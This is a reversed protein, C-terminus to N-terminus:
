KEAEGEAEGDAASQEAPASNETGPEREKAGDEQVDSEPPLVDDAAEELIQFLDPIDEDPVLAEGDPEDPLVANATESEAAQKAKAAKKKSKKEKAAKKKSKKETDTPLIEESLLEEEEGAQAPATETETPSTEAEDSTVAAAEGDSSANQAENTEPVGSPTKRDSGSQPEKTEEASTPEPLFDEEDAPVPVANEEAKKVLSRRVIRGSDPDRMLTEHYGSDIVDIEAKRRRAREDAGSRIKQTLAILCGLTLFAGSPMLFISAPKFWEGFIRVGGSGDAASFLMGSGLLERVFAIALLALMFGIGTAIGDCFSALPGNKSAFAEARALIICNVVILPIFLGLSKDIAPFYAKIIMEVATVFGSIIVIYSAIRIQKPIINRLLSIFLNSFSLVAIVAVGMGLANVVSTTTALTPCMGLLQVFTPNNTLIGERFIDPYSKKM